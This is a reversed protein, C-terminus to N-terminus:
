PRFHGVGSTTKQQYQHNQIITTDIVSGGKEANWAFTYSPGKVTGADVWKGSTPEYVKDSIEFVMGSKNFGLLEKVGEMGVVLVLRSKIKEDNSEQVLIQFCELTKDKSMKITVPWVVHTYYNAYALKRNDKGEKKNKLHELYKAPLASKQGYAWLVSETKGDTVFYGKKQDWRCCLSSAPLLKKQIELLAKEKSFCIATHNKLNYSSSSGVTDTLQIQYSKEEPFPILLEVPVFGTKSLDLSSNNEASCSEKSTGLKQISCSYMLVIISLYKIKKM